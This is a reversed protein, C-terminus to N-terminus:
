IWKEVLHVVASINANLQSIDNGHIDKPIYNITFIENTERVRKSNEINNMMFNILIVKNLIDTPFIFHERWSSIQNVILNESKQLFGYEEYLKVRCVIFDPKNLSKIYYISIIDCICKRSNIEAHFIHDARDLNANLSHIRIGTECFIINEM